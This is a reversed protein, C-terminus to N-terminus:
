SKKFAKIEEVDILKWVISRKENVLSDLPEEPSHGLAILINKSLNREKIMQVFKKRISRDLMEDNIEVLKGSLIMFSFDSFDKEYEEIEVLVYPYDRFFSIKKGYNTSLFYMHGGDFIYLLPAIYPYKDGKFGVRCLYQKSILEDYEKKEMKPLKVIDNKM